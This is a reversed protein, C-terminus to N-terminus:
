EPMDVQDSREKRKVSANKTAESGRVKYKTSAKRLAGGDDDNFFFYGTVPILGAHLTKMLDATWRRIWEAM